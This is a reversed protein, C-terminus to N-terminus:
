CKAARSKILDEDKLQQKKKNQKTKTKNTPQNTKTKPFPVCATRNEQPDKRRM